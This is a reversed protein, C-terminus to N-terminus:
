QEHYYHKKKPKRKTKRKPKTLADLESCVEMCKSEWYSVSDRLRTNSKRLGELQEIAADIAPCTYEDQAEPAQETLEKFRKSM